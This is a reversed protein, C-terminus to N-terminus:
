GAAAALLDRVSRGPRGTLDAVATSLEALAGERVARGFTAIFEAIPEPMEAYQVLGAIYAADDLSLSEVPTGGVESAIAALDVASLLEPGTIDYAKGAHGDGALVAAAAAACDDRAIWASRGEGYNNAFQGSQIAPLLAFVLLDAYLGMRLFTWELGSARMAEETGKHEPVVASPNADTPNVISTYAVHRVGAAKAADIADSHQKVRRGVADTSIILFREVGALAAVMSAPDDFDGARVSVGGQAYSDLKGPDRTVLVVDAADVHALLADATARGLQGGAGSIALTM